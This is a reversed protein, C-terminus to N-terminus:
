FVDAIDQLRCCLKANGKGQCADDAVLNGGGWGITQTLAIPGDEGLDSAQIRSQLLGFM